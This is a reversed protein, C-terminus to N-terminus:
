KKVLGMGNLKVWILRGGGRVGGIGGKKGEEESSRWKVQPWRQCVRESQHSVSGGRVM